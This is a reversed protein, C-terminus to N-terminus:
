RILTVNGYKTVKKGSYTNAEITYVYVDMPQLEGNYRGDWGTNIDNTQFLKMGWRNYISFDKLVVSGLYVPKFVFNKNTNPVFANPIDIYSDPAVIIDISDKTSCGFETRGIVVYHRNSDPQATPNSLEDNNLGKAPTWKFYLCNGEPQIHYADGPYITASDPLYIVAAPKVTITISETDTCSHDDAGTAIYTRTSNPSVYPTYSRPDSINYNPYWAFTKLGNGILHLQISDGSCISTDASQLVLLENSFVTIVMKDSDTCGATSSAVLVFTDVGVNTASFTPNLINANSLGTSPKWKIMYPYNNPNVSGNLQASAGSCIRIDNGATVIPYPQIDIQISDLSDICGPYSGKLIYTFNGIAFPSVVTNLTNTPSFIAGAQTTWKYTYNTDGIAKINITQESCVATDQTLIHFGKLVNVNVTDNVICPSGAVNIAVTYTINAPPHAIPNAITDNNLFSVPTWQYKYVSGTPPIPKLDLKVPTNPCTTTDKVPTFVPVPLLMISATDFRNVCYPTLLSETSYFTSLGPKVIPDSCLTCSMSNVNSGGPLTNWLFNGGGKAHLTVSSGPCISTDKLIITPPWVYIPITLAYNPLYGPSKCSSDKIMLVLSQLGTDAITPTWSFCGRVSDDQQHTYNTSATPFSVFHNDTVILAASTDASKVDFCFNLQQNTCGKILNNSYNGGSVSSINIATTPPTTLCNNLVQIQIDRMVYGVLIGNRYEKVRIALTSAGSLTPTFSYDGTLYNLTFSNGSQIPNTSTNYAPSASNFNINSPSSTCTNGTLPNIVEVTLSDKNPDIAGNNYTFPKNNCIFPIPKVSFYPSSNGQFAFNNFTAEIYLNGNGINNSSNRPIIWTSFKWLSCRPITITVSYWWEQYDPIASLSSMCRTPSGPCATLINSGNATGNLLPGTWKYMKVTTSTSNCTNYVCLDQSDPAASNSCDRFFKFFVRYTSDSLWQYTLEGGANASSVIPLSIFLTLIIITGLFRIQNM